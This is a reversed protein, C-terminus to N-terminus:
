PTFVSERPVSWGTHPGSIVAVYKEYKLWQTCYHDLYKVNKLLLRGLEFATIFHWCASASINYSSYSYIPVALQSSPLEDLEVEM